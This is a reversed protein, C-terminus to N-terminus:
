AAPALRRDLDLGGIWEVWSKVFHLFAEETAIVVRYTEGQERQEVTEEYRSLFAMYVM